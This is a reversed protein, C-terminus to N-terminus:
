CGLESRLLTAGSLRARWTITPCPGKEGFRRSIWGSIPSVSGRHVCSGM